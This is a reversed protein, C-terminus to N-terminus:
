ICGVRTTGAVAKVAGAVSNALYVNHAVIAKHQLILIILTQDVIQPPIRHLTPWHFDIYDDM